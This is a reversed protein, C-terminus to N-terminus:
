EGYLKGPDITQVKGPLAFEIKFNGTSAKGKQEEFGDSAYSYATVNWEFEGVDLSALDKYKFETARGTKQEYLKKLTGNKNKQYLTFKYDTAGEVRNWSFTINRNERLYDAGIVRGNTPFTLRPSQLEPIATIVFTNTAGDLSVGGAGSAKITWQYTGPELRELRIQNRPNDMSQVTKYTGNSQLKRLVFQSKEVKDGQKWTLVTPTRLATLGQIRANNAPATLQVPLVSRLTFNVAGTKGSRRPSLETEETYAQVTCKYAAAKNLPVSASTQKTSGIEAVLKEASDYVKLKYYDAEPVATWSVKVQGEAPISMTSDAAPSTISPRGLQPLVTLARPSTYSVDQGAPKVGVRWYYSGATLSVDKLSQEETTFEKTDRDFRASTSIQVVSQVKAEEYDASLKWMFASTKLKSSEAAFNEPPYILKTEGPIYKEVIFKRIESTMPGDDEASTRVVKWYYTGAPLTDLTFSDTIRTKGSEKEYVLTSFDKKNSVQLKYDATKVDSKWQFTVQNEKVSNFTLKGGAAPIALKPPQLEERKEVTFSLVATSDGYGISQVKYYPTVRWFYTGETLNKVSFQTSSLEEEYIPNSLDQTRSIELKYYDAYDNGQWNFAIKPLETEKRYNFVSNKAPSVAAVRKVSDVTIRGTAAQEIEGEPYARWYLKGVPSQLNVSNKDAVSYSKEIRAFDKTFSTEVKIKKNEYSDSTNWALKVPMTKENNFALLKTESSISTVTLPEKHVEGSAVVKVTEGSTITQVASQKGDETKTTVTANGSQLKFSNDGSGSDSVASIKSGSDLKLVSGNEMSLAVKKTEAASTTDVEINGDNVSIQLGEETYSVQLMTNEHLELVTGDKFTVTAAADEATRIIDFDYLPSNQQLREWVVRDNFKRQAIKRKFEITAIEEKDKRTSSSNLDLWFSRISITFVSLCLVVILVDLLRSKVKKQM